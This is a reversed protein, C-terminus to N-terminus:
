EQLFRNSIWTIDSRCPNFSSDPPFYPMVFFRSHMEIGQLLRESECKITCLLESDPKKYTNFKFNFFEFYETKQVPHFKQWDDQKDETSQPVILFQPYAHLKDRM